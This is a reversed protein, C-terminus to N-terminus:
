CPPDGQGSDSHKDNFNDEGISDFSRRVSYLSVANVLFHALVPPWLSETGKYIWGLLFGAIVAWITWASIKGEPGLHLVGFLVSTIIIGAFPQIASRFFIEEGFASLLALYVISLKSCPGLLMTVTKKLVRFSEFWEEFFHSLIILILTVLIGAGAIRLWEYPSHNISFAKFFSKHWWFSISLGILIMASYFITAVRLLSYNKSEPLANM